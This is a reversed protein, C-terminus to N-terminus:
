PEDETLVADEGGPKRGPRKIHGNDDTELEEPLEDGDSESEEAEMFEDEDPDYFRSEYGM